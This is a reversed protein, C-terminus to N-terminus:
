SKKKSPDTKETEADIEVREALEVGYVREIYEDTMRYDANILPIDIKIRENPKAIVKTSFKQDDSMPYGFAILAPKLTENLWILISRKDAQTIEDETEKHVEGQSRSSGSDVTMTQGNVGKSIESNVLKIKELFVQYADTKNSELLQLETGIDFVGTSNKNISQLWKSTNDRTTTSGGPIKAIAIAHGYKEEYEDWSAWSHRKLITMPVIQELIGYADYLQCYLLQHPLEEYPFGEDTDTPNRVIWKREPIIHERPISKVGTIRNDKLGTVEIVSYGWFVSEMGIRLTDLFWMENILDTMVDDTSGDANVIEIPLNVIRLIRNEIVAQLHLDVMADDYGEVTAYTMPYDVDHRINRADTWEKLERRYKPISQQEIYEFSVFKKNKGTDALKVETPKAVPKDKWFDFISM